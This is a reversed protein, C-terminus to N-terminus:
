LDSHGEGNNLVSKAHTFKSKLRAMDTPPLKGRDYDRRILRLYPGNNGFAAEFHKDDREVFTQRSMKTHSLRKLQVM